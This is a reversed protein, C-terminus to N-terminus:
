VSGYGLHVNEPTHVGSVGTLDLTISFHLLWIREGIGGDLGFWGVTDPVAVPRQCEVKFMKSGFLFMAHLARTVLM